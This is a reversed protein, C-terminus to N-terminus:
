LCVLQLSYLCSSSMCAIFISLRSKSFSMPMCIVSSIYPCIKRRTMSSSLFRALDTCASPTRRAPASRSYTPHQANGRTFRRLIAEPDAIREAMATAYRV